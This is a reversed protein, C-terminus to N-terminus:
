AIAAARALRKEHAFRLVDRIQARLRHDSYELALRKQAARVMEYRRDPQALLTDLAQTWDDESEALIGCGNACCADYAMGKSAIVAAGVSTYEIWKTNAKVRNFNSVVLPCLGIDWHLGAFANLFETYVRVPEITVVRTGFENLEPPKPISGFLEFTVNRHKRLTRVIVPLILELDHAHDFGMYGIKRVPRNTAANLVRGTCYVEGAIMPGEFGLERYRRLLPPTSCYTVDANNLLYRVRDLKEPRNHSRWKAEGIEKPVNLLDDDVHFIVPLDFEHALEVFYETFAASYRCLVVATPGFTEFQERIWDKAARETQANFRGKQDGFLAMIDEAVITALSIRGAAVEGALPKIFSLQLTPILGNAILLIREQTAETVSAEAKLALGSRLLGMFREYVLRRDTLMRSRMLFRAQRALIMDRRYQVDRVFAIWDDLGSIVTLGEYSSTDIAGEEDQWVAVPVGALVFDVIVSSPASIGYSYQTLDVKYMPHNNLTVNDPLDVNNKLVYQGGPHPRLTVAEDKGALADCFAFFTDMFSSKFDGSAHMRVSHLNECVMGGQGTDEPRGASPAYLLSTPGTVMYKSRESPALTSMVSEDCWGCAVDAGFTIRQGHAKNHERSQFFGVCEFGHQLTVKLFESPAARMVNHTHSHASLSSESAAILLGRGGQLVQLAAYESDYVHQQGRTGASLEDLEVQWTGLTDRLIFRDSILYRVDADLQSAALLALPRVINIDQLLNILFVVQGAGMSM